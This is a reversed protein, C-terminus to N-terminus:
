TTEAKQYTIGKQSTYSYPGTTSYYYFDFKCICKWALFLQTYLNYMNSNM